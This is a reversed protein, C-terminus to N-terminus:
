ANQDGTLYRCLSRGLPLSYVTVDGKTTVYAIWPKSQSVTLHAIPDPTEFLAREWRPGKLTLVHRNERLSILADTYHPEQIVGVVEQTQETRIENSRNSGFVLWSSPNKKIAFL